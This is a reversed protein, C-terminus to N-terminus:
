SGDAGRDRALARIAPDRDETLKSLAPRGAENPLQALARAAARQVPGRVTRLLQRRECVRELPAAAESRGLLGLADAAAVQEEETGSELIGVLDPLVGRRRSSGLCRVAATRVRPESDAVLQRGVHEALSGGRSSAVDIVLLRVGPSAHRSAVGLWREITLSPRLSERLATILAQAVGASRDRALADAAQDDLVGIRDALLVFEASKDRRVLRLLMEGVDPKLEELAREITAQQASEGSRWAVALLTIASEDQAVSSLALALPHRLAPPVARLREALGAIVRALGDADARGVAERVWAAVARAAETMAAVDEAEEVAAVPDDDRRLSLTRFLEVDGAGQRSVTTGGSRRLSSRGLAGELERVFEGARSFRASRDKQLARALTSAMAEGLDPRREALSPIPASVHQALIVQANLGGYPPEGVLMEYVLVALSYVDSRADIDPEGAAQEPSMYAPTGIIVGSATLTSDRQLAKAIGFDTLVSRGSAFELLVNDPKIDRHVVGAAHAVDLASAIDQAVSMAVRPALQGERELRGRLTEGQILPMVFCATENEGAVFYIPVINPHTLKAATQAERRFREALQPVAAFEPILTKVALDRKLQRDFVRFVVAYGGRGIQERVEYHSGLAERVEVALSGVDSSALIAGCEPCCLAGEPALRGCETCLTGPM